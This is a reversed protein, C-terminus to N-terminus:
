FHKCSNSAVNAILYAFSNLKQTETECSRKAPYEGRVKILLEVGPGRRPFTGSGRIGGSKLIATTHLAMLM